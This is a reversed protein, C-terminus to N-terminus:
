IPVAAGDDIRGRDATQVSIVDVDEVFTCGVKEAVRQPNHPHEARGCFHASADNPKTTIQDVVPQMRILNLSLHEARRLLQNFAFAGDNSAKIVEQLVAVELLDDDRAAESIVAPCRLLHSGAISCGGAVFPQHILAQPPMVALLWADAKVDAIPVDMVHIDKAMAQPKVVAIGDSVATTNAAYRDRELFPDVPLVLADLSVVGKHPVEM